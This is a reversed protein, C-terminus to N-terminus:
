VSMRRGSDDYGENFHCHQPFTERCSFMSSSLFIAGTQLWTRQMSPESTIGLLWMIIVKLAPLSIEYPTFRLLNQKRNGCLGFKQTAAKNAFSRRKLM